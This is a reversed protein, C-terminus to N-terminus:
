LRGASDAIRLLVAFDFDVALCASLALVTADFKRRNRFSNNANAQHGQRAQRNLLRSQPEGTPLAGLKQRM